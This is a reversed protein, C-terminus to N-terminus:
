KSKASKGAKKRVIENEYRIGKGKYPEPPRKSRIEATFQGVVQKDIGFIIIVNNKEVKVDLGETIDMEVPLSYGVNLILKNGSVAAKFGVGILVLKKEFGTTVGTVMNKLLMRYLGHFSSTTSENKVTAIQEEVNVSVGHLLQLSLEGKPGKVTVLKESATKVEVNSPLQIPANGLRSM